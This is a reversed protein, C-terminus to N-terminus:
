RGRRSSVSEVGVQRGLLASGREEIQSKALMPVLWWALAALALLVLVAWALRRLWVNVSM